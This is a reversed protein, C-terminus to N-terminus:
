PVESPSSPVSDTPIFEQFVKYAGAKEAEEPYLEILAMASSARVSKDQDPLLRLLVPLFTAKDPQIYELSVLASERTRDDPSKTLAVLASEASNADKGLMVFGDVGLCKEDDADTFDFRILSQEELLSKMREEFATDKATLKKLLFPIANTGINKVANTCAARINASDPNVERRAKFDQLWQTLKRGQYSPERNHFRYFAFTGAVLVFILIIILRLHKMKPTADPRLTHNALM